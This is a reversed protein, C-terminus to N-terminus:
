QVAPANTVTISTDPNFIVWRTQFFRMSLNTSNLRGSKDELVTCNRTSAVRLEKGPPIEFDLFPTGSFCGLVEVTLQRNTHNAIVVARTLYNFLLATRHIGGFLSFAILCFVAFIALRFQPKTLFTIFAFVIGAIAALLLTVVGLIRLSQAASSTTVVFVVFTTALILVPLFALLPKPKEGLSTVFQLM